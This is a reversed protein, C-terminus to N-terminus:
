FGSEKREEHAGSLVRVQAGPEPPRREIRQAVPAIPHKFITYM